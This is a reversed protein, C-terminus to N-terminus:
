PATQKVTPKSTDAAEAMRAHHALIQAGTWGKARGGETLSIPAPIRKDRIAQELGSLTLGFWKGGDRKRVIENPHLQSLPASPKNVLM